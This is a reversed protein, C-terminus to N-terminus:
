DGPWAVLRRDPDLAQKLASVLPPEAPPEPVRGHDVLAAGRAHWGIVRGRAGPLAAPVCELPISREYAPAAEDRTLKPEAPQGDTEAAIQEAFRREAEVMSQLGDISLEIRAPNPRVDLARPRGGRVILARAAELARDVTAFHFSSRLAREGVRQLRLTAATILGLTGRTGVVVHMLDPGSAKRPAVRTAIDRRDPLLAQVGACADAFRGSRPSAESPRPAALLAGITRTLSSPALPGLTLGRPALREELASATLGAQVQCLLSTEDLDLLSQMRALSLSLGRSSGIGVPLSVEAAVRMVEAIEAASGPRAVLRRRELTVQADGIASAMRGSVLELAALQDQVTV